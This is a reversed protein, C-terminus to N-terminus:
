ERTIKFKEAKLSNAIAERSEDKSIEKLLSLSIKYEYITSHDIYPDQGQITLFSTEIFENSVSFFPIFIGGDPKNGIEIPGWYITNGKDDNISLLALHLGELNGVNNLYLYFTSDKKQSAVHVKLPLEKLLSSDVTYDKLCGFVELTILLTSIVILPKM